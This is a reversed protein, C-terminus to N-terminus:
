RELREKGFYHEMAIKSARRWCEYCSLEVAKECDCKERLEKTFKSFGKIEGRLVREPCCDTLSYLPLVIVDNKSFDMGSLEPFMKNLNTM